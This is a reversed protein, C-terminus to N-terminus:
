NCRTAYNIELIELAARSNRLVKEARYLLYLPKITQIFKCVGLKIAPRIHLLHDVLRVAVAIALDVLLLEQADHLLCREVSRRAAECVTM